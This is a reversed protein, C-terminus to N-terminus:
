QYESPAIVDDIKLYGSVYRAPHGLERAAALFIHAHDQCVGQKNCIADEATTEVNSTNVQYDVHDRILASLEHLRAIDARTEKMESLIQRVGPGVQTLETQRRFLWLPAYGGHGGLVGDNQPTEVEGRCIISLETAGPEIRVLDVHNNHEDEFTLEKQGGVVEIDWDLIRQGARAKPTLRIQQLGYQVPADYTYSTRHFIKLRM